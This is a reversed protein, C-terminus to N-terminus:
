AAAIEVELLYQYSLSSAVYKKSTSIGITLVETQLSLREPDLFRRLKPSDDDQM